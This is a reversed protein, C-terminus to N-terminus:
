VRPSWPLPADIFRLNTDDMHKPIESFFLNFYNYTNIQNAKATTLGVSKIFEAYPRRTHIWCCALKLDAREKGLQHYVQHGDPM